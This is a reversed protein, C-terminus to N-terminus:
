PRPNTMRKALEELLFLRLLSMVQPATTCMHPDTHEDARPKGELLHLDHSTQRQPTGSTEMHRQRTKDQWGRLHHSLHRLRRGTETTCKSGITSTLTIQNSNKKGM